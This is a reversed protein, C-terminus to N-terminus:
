GLLIEVAERLTSVEGVNGPFIIYPTGPFLSEAGTQWVPIGPRIQGLVKACKVRLAKVGVDSSTIGGKAVVFAPSATLRGVCSQLADSITVSRVLAAEPTDDPLTLVVRKTSVCCTIGKAIQQSCHAVIAAAEKELEGPVLVKDSDMEIFEIGQVKKLEELQATTKKTHSGVVIIGGAKSKQTVMKERTLLPQDSINGIAKVLAAASRITFHRGKAMARYLAVAFVKVDCDAVANVIVHGYDHVALLQAEIGDFDMARLSELSICTVDGARVKGGTKEEIYECLNSAHYGFTEDKAFETQGCPVLEAGTSDLLGFKGDRSVVAYGNLLPAARAYPCLIDGDMKYGNEAETVERLLDTELPYHGRLTSDGRSIILYDMGFERAVKATNEAIERHAKTTEAVTFGRSNTLIFFLKEPAAFGKRLSEATWDTYVYIDHVTQVGTPDDDLVIIKRNSAAAEAALAANLKEEDVQPFNALVDASRIQEM